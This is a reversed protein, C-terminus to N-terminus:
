FDTDYVDGNEKIKKEEYPVVVRRYLEMKAGELAGICDNIRQYSLALDGSGHPLYLYERILRTISFNLEGANKPGYPIVRKRDEKKIYPM